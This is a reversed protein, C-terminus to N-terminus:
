TGPASRGCSRPSRKRGTPHAMPTAQTQKGDRSIVQAQFPNTVSAVQSVHGMRGLAAQIASAYSSSTVSQSGRSVLVVQTQAGSYAPLKRTLLNAANQSETGPITINDNTTGHSVVGLVVVAAAVLLWVSLVRRRHHYCWRALRYLYISM